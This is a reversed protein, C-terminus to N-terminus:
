EFKAREEKGFIIMFGFCNEKAYLACLTKGGKRYKYEYTWKKGGDNWTKDMEYKSDIMACLNMWVDYLSEGILNTMEQKTPIRELM